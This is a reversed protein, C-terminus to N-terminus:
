RPSSARISTMTGLSGSSNVGGLVESGNGTDHPHALGLGHGIEHLTVGYMFGGRDMGGGETRSWGSFGNNLMGHGGTGVSTPFYFYGLLTGGSIATNLNSSAIELDAADRNNTLEFDIDAFTEINEFASFIQAREYANFGTATFTQSSGNFRETYREGGTALYVLVTDSDDLANQGRIADVPSPAKAGAVSIRYDGTYRSLYSDAEIFYSGAESATFTLTSDLDVAFRRDDNQVLVRGTDDRLRLLPDRVEDLGIGDLDVRITQGASLEIRYWDTDGVQDLTGDVSQGVAISGTTDTDSSILDFAPGDIASGTGSGALGGEVGGEELVYDPKCADETIILGCTHCM